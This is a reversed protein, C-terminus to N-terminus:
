CCCGMAGASELFAPYAASATLSRSSSSPRATSRPGTRGPGCGSRSCSGSDRDGRRSLPRSRLGAACSSSTGRSRTHRSSRGSPCFSLAVVVPMFPLDCGPRSRGDSKRSRSSVLPLYSIMSGAGFYAACSTFTFASVHRQAHVCAARTRM